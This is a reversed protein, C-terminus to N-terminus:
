SRSLLSSDAFSHAKSKTEKPAFARGNANEGEQAAQSGRSSCSSSVSQLISDPVKNKAKTVGESSLLYIPIAHVSLKEQMAQYKTCVEQKGSLVATDM